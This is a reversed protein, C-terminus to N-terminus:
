TLGQRRDEVNGESYCGVVFLRLHGYIRAGLRDAIHRRSRLVADERSGRRVLPVLAPGTHHGTGPTAM